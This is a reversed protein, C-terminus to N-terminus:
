FVHWFGGASILNIEQKDPLLGWDIQGDILQGPQNHFVANATGINKMSIRYGEQASIDPLNVTCLTACNALVFFGTSPPTYDTTIIIPVDISPVTPTCPIGTSVFNGNIDFAYCTNVQIPSGDTNVLTKGNGTRSWPELRNNNDFGAPQNVGSGYVIEPVYETHTNYDYKFFTDGHFNGDAGKFQVSMDVGAAQGVPNGTDVLNGNLDIQVGHGPIYAGSATPFITTNGTRTGQAPVGSGAGILPNGSSFVTSLSGASGTTNQNLTPIDAPVIARPNITGPAGNPSALFRNAPQSPSALGLSGSTTIPGGLGTLWSPLTGWDISTVTGGGGGAGCTQPLVVGLPDITLCATGSTPRNTPLYLANNNNGWVFPGPPAAIAPSYLAAFLLLIKWM